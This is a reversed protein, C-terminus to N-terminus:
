YVRTEVRTFPLIYPVIKAANNGIELLLVALIEFAM